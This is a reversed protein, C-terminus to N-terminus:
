QMAIAVKCSSVAAASRATAQDATALAQSYKAPAYSQWALVMGAFFAGLAFSVDFLKAAGFAVGVAVAVVSLTFLEQSGTRAV